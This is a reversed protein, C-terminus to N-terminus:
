EGPAERLPESTLHYAECNTCRYFRTERHPNNQWGRRRQAQKLAAEATEETVYRLKGAPRGGCRGDAEVPTEMDPHWTPAGTGTVAGRSFVARKSVQPTRRTASKGNRRPM